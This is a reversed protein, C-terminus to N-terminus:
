KDFSVKGPKQLFDSYEQYPSRLFHTEKWLEPSLYGYSVSLAFFTAQLLISLPESLM